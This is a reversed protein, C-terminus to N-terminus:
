ALFLELLFIGLEQLKVFSGSKPVWAFSENRPDDKIRSGDLNLRRFVPFNKRKERERECARSEMIRKKKEQKGKKEERDLVRMNQYERSARMAHVTKLERVTSSQSDFFRSFKERKGLGRM